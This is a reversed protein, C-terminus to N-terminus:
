RPEVTIRNVRKSVNGRFRIIIPLIVNMSLRFTEKIICVVEDQNVAGAVSGKAAAAGAISGAKGAASLDKSAGKEAM